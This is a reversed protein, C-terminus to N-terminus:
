LRGSEGPGAVGAMDAVQWEVFFEAEDFVVHV